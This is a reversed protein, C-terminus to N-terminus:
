LKSQDPRSLRATAKWDVWRIDDQTSYERLSEFATGPVVGAIVIAGAQRLLARREALEAAKANALQAHM